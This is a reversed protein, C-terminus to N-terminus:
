KGSKALAEAIMSRIKAFAREEHATARALAEATYEGRKGWDETWLRDRRSGNRPGDIALMLEPDDAIRVQDALDLKDFGPESVLRKVPIIHDAELDGSPAKELSVEDVLGKGASRRMVTDRSRVSPTRARIREYLPLEADALDALLRKEADAYQNVEAGLEQARDRVQRLTLQDISPDGKQSFAEELLLREEASLAGVNIREQGPVRAATLKNVLAAYGAADKLAQEAHGRVTGLEGRVRDARAKNEPSVPKAGDIVTGCKSPTSFRCWTGDARRRWRHGNGLDVEDVYGDVTSPQPESAAVIDTENTLLEPKLSGGDAVEASAALKGKQVEDVAARGPPQGLQKEMQANLENRLLAAQDPPIKEEIEAMRANAERVNGARAATLAETFLHGAAGALAGQAGAEAMSTLTKELGKLFGDQWTSSRSGTDIATGASNAAAGEVAANFTQVGLDAQQTAVTDAVAAAEGALPRLAGGVLAGTVGAAAGVAFARAGEAATIRRQKVVAVAGLSVLGQALAARALLSATLPAGAGGTAVAVLIGAVAGIVQIAAADLQDRVAIFDNLAAETSEGLAGISKREEPTLNKQDGAKALAADLARKEDGYAASAQSEGGLISNDGWLSGKEQNYRDGLWQSKAALDDKPTLLPAITAWGDSDRLKAMVKENSRISAKQEDTTVNTALMNRIAEASDVAMAADLYQKWDGSGLKEGLQKARLVRGDNTFKRYFTDTKNYETAFTTLVSPDSHKLVGRIVAETDTVDVGLQLLRDDVSKGQNVIADFRDAEASSISVKGRVLDHVEKNAKLQDLEAPGADALAAWIQDTDVVWADCAIKIRNLASYDGDLILKARQFHRSEDGLEAGLKPRLPAKYSQEYETETPPKQKDPTAHHVSDLATMIGDRFMHMTQFAMELEDTPRVKGYAAIADARVQDAGSMESDLFGAISNTAGNPLTATSTYDDSFADQGTAGYSATFLTAHHDLDGSMDKLLRYISEEDTGGGIGAFYLKDVPRLEGFRLYAYVRAADAKGQSMNMAAQVLSMPYPQAAWARQVDDWKRAAALCSTLIENRNGPDQRVLRVIKAPLDEAPAAPDRHVEAHADARVHPREGAMFREAAAEAEREAPDGPHSVWDRSTRPESGGQVVHTLEHALLRQGADTDPQYRGRAFYIDGGVTFANASVADAANAAGSDTHLRVGGFDAGFRQEAEARFTRPMSAGSGTANLADMFSPSPGTPRGTGPEAHRHLKEYELREEDDCDCPVPGCRRVQGGALLRAAAANGATLAVAVPVGGGAFRAMAANGLGLPQQSARASATADAQDRVTENAFRDVM